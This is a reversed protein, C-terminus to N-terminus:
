EHETSLNGTWSFSLVARTKLKNVITTDNKTKILKLDKVDLMHM